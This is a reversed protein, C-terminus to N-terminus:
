ETGSVWGVTDIPNAKPALRQTYLVIQVLYDVFLILAGTLSRNSALELTEADEASLPEGFM